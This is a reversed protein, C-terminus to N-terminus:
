PLAALAIGTCSTGAFAAMAVPEPQYGEAAGALAATTLAAGVVLLACLNPAGAVHTAANARLTAIRSQSASQLGLQSDVMPLGSTLVPHQIAAEIESGDAGYDSLLQWLLVGEPSAAVVQRQLIEDRMYADLFAQGLTQLGGQRQLECVDLAAITAAISENVQGNILPTVALGPMFALMAQYPSASAFAALIELPPPTDEDGGQPRRAAALLPAGLARRGIITSALTLAVGSALLSRRSSLRSGTGGPISPEHQSM